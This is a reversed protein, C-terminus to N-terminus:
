NQLWPPASAFQSVEAGVSGGGLLGNSGVVEWGGASDYGLEGSHRCSSPVFRTLPLATPPPWSGSPVVVAAWAVRPARSTTSSTAGTYLGLPLWAADESAAAAAPHLSIGACLAAGAQLVARRRPRTDPPLTASVRAYTGAPGLAPALASPLARPTVAAHLLVLAAM